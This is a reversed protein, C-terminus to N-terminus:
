LPFAGGPEEDDEIGKVPNEVTTGTKRSGPLGSTSVPSWIHVGCPLTSPVQEQQVEYPEERGLEGAQRVSHCCLKRAHRGSM